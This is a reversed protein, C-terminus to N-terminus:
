FPMEFCMEKHEENVHQELAAAKDFMQDCYACLMHKLTQHLRQKETTCKHRKLHTMYITIANYTGSCIPCKFPRCQTHVCRYHEMLRFRFSARYSCKPCAYKRIGQHKVKVHRKLAEKSKVVIKCEACRIVVNNMENKHVEEHAKFSRRLYFKRDCFRCSYVNEKTHCNMHLALLKNTKYVKGCVECPKPVMLEDESLVNERKTLKRRKRRKKPVESPEASHELEAIQQDVFHDNGSVPEVFASEEKIIIDEYDSQQLDVIEESNDPQQLENEHSECDDEFHTAVDREPNSTKTQLYEFSTRCLQVFTYTQELQDSCKKCFKVPGTNSTSIEINLSDRIICDFRKEHISLESSDVTNSSLQNCISCHTLGIVDSRDDIQDSHEVSTEVSSGWLYRAEPLNLNGARYEREAQQYREDISQRPSRNEFSDGSKDLIQKVREFRQRYQKDAQQLREMDVMLCARLLSQVGDNTQVPNLPRILANNKDTDQDRNFIQVMPITREPPDPSAHHMSMCQVPDGFSGAESKILQYSM